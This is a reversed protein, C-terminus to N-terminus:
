TASVLAYKTANVRVRKVGRQEWLTEMDDLLCDVQGGITLADGRSLEPAATKVIMEFQCEKKDDFYIAAVTFGNNNHVELKEGTLRKSGSAVINGEGYVGNTGWIVSDDGIIVPTNNM